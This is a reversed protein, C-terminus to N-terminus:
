RRSSAAATGASTSSWGRRTSSRTSGPTSACWGTPGWTPCTSTASRGAPRRPSTSATPGCGTPTACSRRTASRSSWWTARETRRRSPTSPSCSRAQRGPGRARRVCPRGTPFPQHNVALIYEGEKVGVGPEALPSRVNDAPDGRYIRAVKYAEGERVLDAGLLGTPVRTSRARRPRRGLRLHALHDARRDDRRDPRAPRRPDGPAAAPDRVPRPDGDLRPGGMGADWYFDRMHRWAEFYIQEWEERPDLEVM